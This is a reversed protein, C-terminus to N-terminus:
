AQRRSAIEGALIALLASMAFAALFWPQWLGWSFCGTVTAATLTALAFPFTQASCRALARILLLGFAALMLAGIAGLEYWIQMFVNHAHTGSRWQYPTDAVTEVRPGREADILKTSAAGVGLLPRKGVQDAAYAWLVIRHRASNPLWSAIHLQGGHFAVHALPVVLLSATIWGGAVLVLALKPMARAIALVLVSALIALLSTEHSSLLVTLVTLALVGLLVPLRWAKELWTWGILLMPWLVLTLAAMNRNSLYSAVMVNDEDGSLHRAPPRTFPLLTFVLRKIAHGSFEEVALYALGVGFAVLMTRAIQSLVDDRAQPLVSTAFWVAAVLVALLASKSLSETRDVAWITSMLAWASLLLLPAAVVLLDRAPLADVSVIGRSASAVLAMVLLALCAFSARPGILVLGIAVAALGALALAHRDLFRRAAVALM